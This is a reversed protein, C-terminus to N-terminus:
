AALMAIDWGCPKPVSDKWLWGIKGRPLERNAEIKNWLTIYNITENNFLTVFISFWNVLGTRRKRISAFLETLCSGFSATFSRWTSWPPVSIATEHADSVECPYKVNIKNIKNWMRFNLYNQRSKGTRQAGANDTTTVCRNPYLYSEETNGLTYLNHRGFATIIFERLVFNWGGRHRKMIEIICPIKTRLKWNTQAYHM